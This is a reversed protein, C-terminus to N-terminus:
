CADWVRFYRDYATDVMKRAEVEDVKQKVLTEVAFDKALDESRWPQAFAQRLADRANVKLKKPM